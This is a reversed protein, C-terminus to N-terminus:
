REAVKPPNARHLKRNLFESVAFYETTPIEYSPRINSIYLNFHGFRTEMVQSPANFLVDFM